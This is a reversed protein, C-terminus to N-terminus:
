EAVRPYLTDARTEFAKVMRMVAESFLSEMVSQFLRSRFEFDVSFDILCGSKHPQFHWSNELHRFPGEAYRVHLKLTEPYFDVYSTFRERYLRFGIMLDAVMKREDQTRVRAALCWPLFEPYAHVDGVLHYLNEPLHPVLRTESYATMIPKAPKASHPSIPMPM